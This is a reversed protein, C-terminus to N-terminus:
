RKDAGSPLYVGMSELINSSPGPRGQQANFSELINKLANLDVDVPKYEDEEDFEDDYTALPPARREFGETVKTGALERDMQDMYQKMEDVLSDACKKRSRKKKKQQAPKSKTADLSDMEESESISHTDSETEYDSMGSSSHESDTHPVHMTLVSRIADSFSEPEFSLRSSDEKSTSNQESSPSMVDKASRGKAKRAPRQPPNVDVGELGSEKNLFTRLTNPVKHSAEHM